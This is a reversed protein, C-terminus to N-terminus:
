VAEQVTVRVNDGEFEVETVDADLQASVADNVVTDPVTIDVTAVTEEEDAESTDGNQVLRRLSDAKTDQAEYDGNLDEKRSELTEQHYKGVHTAYNYVTGKYEVYDILDNNELEAKAAVDVAEQQKESLESYPRDFDPYNKCM